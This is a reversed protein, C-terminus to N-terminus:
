FVRLECSVLVLSQLLVRQLDTTIHYLYGCYEVCYM